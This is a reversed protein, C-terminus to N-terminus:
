DRDVNVVDGSAADISVEIDDEGDSLEVAWVLTQVRFRDLEVGQVLGTIEEGAATVADAMSLTAQTVRAGDAVDIRGDNRTDTVETGDPNVRIETVQGDAVVDIDWGRKGEEDLEFATGGVENEALEIAAVARDVSKQADSTSVTDSGCASLGFALVGAGFLTGLIKVASKMPVPYPLLPTV